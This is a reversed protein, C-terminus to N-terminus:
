EQLPIGNLWLTVMCSNVIPLIHQRIKENSSLVDQFRGYDVIGMRVLHSRESIISRLVDRNNLCWAQALAEPAGNSQRRIVSGPLLGLFAARLIPKHILQGGYPIDDRPM